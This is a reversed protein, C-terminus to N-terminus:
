IGPLIRNKPDSSLPASLYQIWGSSLICIDTKPMTLPLVKYSKMSDRHSDCHPYKGCIM